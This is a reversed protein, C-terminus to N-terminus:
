PRRRAAPQHGHRGAGSQDNRHQAHRLVPQHSQREPHRRQCEQRHLRDLQRQDALRQQRQGGAQPRRLVAARQLDAPQDADGPLEPLDALRRHRDGHGERGASRGGRWGPGRDHRRHLRLGRPLEPARDGVPQGPRPELLRRGRHLRHQKFGGQPDSTTEVRVGPDGTGTGDPARGTATFFEAQKHKPQLLTQARGTLPGSSGAGGRDTYGAELVYFVNDGESHGSSLTTQVTGSCGTYQDLPHGHTDHGLIAQIKVNACDITGDEPDTVTVTFNVRDGFTFLSGNPPLNITVTPATNGVVIPVNATATKGGADKVTLVASFNGAATYTRSPNAETSDVSGNGDFDWAYTLSTGDPDASGASSFKM